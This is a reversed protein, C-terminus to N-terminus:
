GSFREVRIYIFKLRIQVIVTKALANRDIHAARLELRLQSREEGERVCQQAIRFPSNPLDIVLM